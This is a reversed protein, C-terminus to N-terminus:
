RPMRVPFSGLAVLADSGAFGPLREQPHEVFAGLMLLRDGPAYLTHPDLRSYVRVTRRQLAALELETVFLQGEPQISKVTGFLFLGENARAHVELWQAARNGLTALKQPQQGFSILLDRVAAAHARIDPEGPQLFALVAGLHAFAAYFEDTLQQRHEASRDPSMDWAVSAQLARELAERLDTSAYSRAPIPAPEAPPAPGGPAAPAQRQAALDTPADPLANGSQARGSVLRDSDGANALPTDDVQAARFKAPVAWPAVRSITPGIGLLDRKWTYPVCWWLILQAAPVALLAGGVIKTIEWAVNPRRRTARRPGGRWEVAPPPVTGPTFDFAPVDADLARGIVETDEAAADPQDGSVVILAPPLQALFESLPREDRCWPCQVVAAVSADSPVTVHERCAPCSAVFM